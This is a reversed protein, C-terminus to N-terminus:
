ILTKAYLPGLRLQYKIQSADFTVSAGVTWPDLRIIKQQTRHPGGSYDLTVTAQGGELPQIQFRGSYHKM